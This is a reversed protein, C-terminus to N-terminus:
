DTIKDPFRKKFAAKLPCVLARMDPHANYATRLKFFENWQSVFGTMYIEAKLDNPLIGRAQQAKLGGDKTLTMYYSQSFDLASKYAQKISDDVEENEWWSPKIFTLEEGFKGNSYNCFRTSEQVFSFVRHRVLEHTIGRSTVFKVTVRPEHQPRPLCMNYLDDLWRNEYLVRYNTTVYSMKEDTTVVSYPNDIYRLIKPDISFDNTSYEVVPTLHPFELYVTAQELIATHGDQIRRGVFENASDDTIKDESKYSVRGCLEIHKYIGKKSYEQPVIEFYSDVLKM